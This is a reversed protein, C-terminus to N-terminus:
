VSMLDSKEKAIRAVKKADTALADGYALPRVWWDGIDEHDTLVSM